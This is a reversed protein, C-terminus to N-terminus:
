FQHLFDVFVSLQLPFKDCSSSTINVMKTQKVSQM